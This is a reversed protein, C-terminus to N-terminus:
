TATLIDKVGRVVEKQKHSRMGYLKGSFHAIIMIMDRVLEEQPSRYVDGNIVEIETGFASCFEKLTEFGFRTLRDSYSVVIKRVEKRMVMRLLRKFNLRKENLGSGIDILINEVGKGKILAVQRELDDKQSQSSVRAYGVVIGQREMEGQIRLIEGEPIRRRGGPTRVVKLKGERDWRQITHTQIGLFKKAEKLTYLREM